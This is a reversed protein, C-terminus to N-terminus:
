HSSNATHPLKILFSANNFEWNEPQNIKHCLLPFLPINNHDERRIISVHCCPQCPVQHCHCAGWPLVCMQQPPLGSSSKRPVIINSFTMVTRQQHSLLKHLSLIFIWLRNTPHKWSTRHATRVSVIKYVYYEAPRFFFSATRQLMHLLCCM